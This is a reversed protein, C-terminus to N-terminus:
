LSGRTISTQGLHLFQGNLLPLRRGSASPRDHSCRRERPMPPVRGPRTEHLHFTTVGNPDPGIQRGPLGVTLFASIGLPRLVVWSAFAPPQFAVPFRPTM